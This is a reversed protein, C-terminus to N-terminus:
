VTGVTGANSGNGAELFRVKRREARGKEKLGSLGPPSGRRRLFRRSRAEREERKRYEALQQRRKVSRAHAVAPTPKFGIGNIGTGDDDSDNPDYVTIEDEHWTLSARVPDVIGSQDEELAEESAKSATMSSSTTKPTSTATLPPTGARKQNRSKSYPSLLPSDSNDINSIEPSSSKASDITNSVGRIDAATKAESTNDLAGAAAQLRMETPRSRELEEGDGPLRARKRAVFEDPFDEQM